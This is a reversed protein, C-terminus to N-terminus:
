IVDRPEKRQLDTKDFHGDFSVLNLDLKKAVYYQLSDDFDLGLKRSLKSIEYEEDLDTPYVTLGAFNRMEEIFLILTDVKGASALVVEISHLTFATIFAEIERKEVKTLLVECEEAREQDLLLELIINTDILLNRM